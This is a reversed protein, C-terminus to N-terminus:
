DFLPDGIAATHRAAHASSTEAPPDFYRRQVVRAVRHLSGEAIAAGASELEGAVEAMFAARKDPTIPLSLSELVDMEADTLMLPM